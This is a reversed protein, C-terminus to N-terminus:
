FNIKVTVTGTAGSQPEAPLTATFTGTSGFMEGGPVPMGQGVMIDLTYSGETGGGDQAAGDPAAADQPTTSGAFYQWTPTGADTPTAQVEAGGSAGPDTSSWTGSMPHGPNQLTISIFQLPRPDAVAISFASRDTAM